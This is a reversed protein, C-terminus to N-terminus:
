SHLLLSYDAVLAFEEVARGLSYDTEIIRRGNESIEALRSPNLLIERAREALAGYDSHRYPIYDNDTFAKDIFANGDTAVVAGSAMGCSMQFPLSYELPANACFIM